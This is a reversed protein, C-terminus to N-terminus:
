GRPERPSLGVVGRVVEVWGRLQVESAGLGGGGRHLVESCRGWVYGLERAKGEDGIARGLVLFKVRWRAAQSGPVRERLVREVAGELAQRVLVACARPWLGAMAEGSKELLGEAVALREGPTM